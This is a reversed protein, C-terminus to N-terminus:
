KWAAPFFMKFRPSWECVAASVCPREDLLALSAGWEEEGDMVPQCGRTSYWSVSMEERIGPGPQTTIVPRIALKKWKSVGLLDGCAALPQQFNITLSSVPAM